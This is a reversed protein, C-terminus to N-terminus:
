PTPNPTPPRLALALEALTKQRLTDDGISAALLNALHLHSTTVIASQSRAVSQVIESFMKIYMAGVFNTLIGGAAGLVAIVVKEGLLERDPPEAATAPIDQAVFFLTAIIIAFGLAMAVVGVAFILSSQRLTQDYFRKLQLQQIKLLKQAKQEHSQSGIRLLDEENYLDVIEQRMGRTGISAGLGALVIAVSAGILLPVRGDPVCNQGFLHVPFCVGGFMRASAFVSFGVLFAVAALVFCFRRRRESLKLRVSLKERRDELLRLQAGEDAQM